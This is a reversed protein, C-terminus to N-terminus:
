DLRYQYRVVKKRGPMITGLDYNVRGVWDDETAPTDAPIPQCGKYTASGFPGWDLKSEISSSASINTTLATLGLRDVNRLWASRRSIDGVNFYANNMNANFSRSLVVGDVPTSALNTLEHGITIERNGKNHTFAQVLRFHGDITDRAIVCPMDIPSGCGSVVTSPGFGSAAFGVDYGHVVSPTCVAYGEGAAGGFHEVGFPSELWHLNGDVSICWQYQHTGATGPFAYNCSDSAGVFSPAWLAGIIVIGFFVTKKRM